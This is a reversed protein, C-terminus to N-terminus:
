EYLHRGCEAVHDRCQRCCRHPERDEHLQRRGLEQVLPLRLQLKRSLHGRKNGHDLSHQEHAVKNGRRRDSRGNAERRHEAAGDRRVQSNLVRRQRRDNEPREEPKAQHQAVRRRANHNREPGGIGPVGRLLGM